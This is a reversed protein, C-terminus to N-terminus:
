ALIISLMYPRLKPMGVQATVGPDESIPKCMLCQTGQSMQKELIALINYSKINERRHSHLIGEEPIHRRTARKLISM